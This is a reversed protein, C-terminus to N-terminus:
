NKLNKFKASDRPFELDLSPCACNAKQNKGEVFIASHSKWSTQAMGNKKKKLFTLM